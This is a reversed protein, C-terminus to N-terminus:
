IKELGGIEILYVDGSRSFGITNQEILVLVDDENNESHKAIKKVTFTNREAEEVSLIYNYCYRLALDYDIENVMFWGIYASYLCGTNIIKVTDGVKIPKKIETYKKLNEISYEESFIANGDAPKWEIIILNNKFGVIHGEYIHGKLIFTKDKNETVFALINDSIM